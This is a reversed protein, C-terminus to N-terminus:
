AGPAGSSTGRRIRWAFVVWAPFVVWALTALGLLAPGSWAPAAPSRWSATWLWATMGLALLLASATFGAVRAGRREAALGTALVLTAGWGSCGTILVLAGGARAVQAIPVAGFAVASGGVPDASAFLWTGGFVGALPVSVLAGLLLGAFQRSTM